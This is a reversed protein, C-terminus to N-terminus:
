DALLLPSTMPPSPVVGPWRRRVVVVVGFLAVVAVVGLVVSGVALVVVPAPGQWHDTAAAALTQAEGISRFGQTTPEEGHLLKISCDNGTHGAHCQCLGRVCQGRVRGGCESPCAMALTSLYLLLDGNKVLAQHEDVFTHTEDPVLFPHSASDVTVTGDGDVNRTQVDETLLLAVDPVRFNFLLDVPTQMGTGYVNYFRFRDRPLKENLSHWQGALELAQERLLNNFPFARESSGGTNPNPVKAKINARVRTFLDIVSKSDSEQWAGDGDMFRVKPDFGFSAAGPDPLLQYASSAEAALIGMTFNSVMPVGFDYGVLFSKYSM